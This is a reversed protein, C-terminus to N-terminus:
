ITCTHPFLHMQNIVSKKGSTKYETIYSLFRSTFLSYVYKVTEEQHHKYCAKVVVREKVRDNVLMKETQVEIQISNSIAAETSFFM